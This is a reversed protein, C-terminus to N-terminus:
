GQFYIKIEGSSSRFWTNASMNKPDDTFSEVLEMQNVRVRRINPLGQLPLIGLKFLTKSGHFMIELDESKVMVSIFTDGDTDHLTLSGQDVLYAKFIVPSFPKDSLPGDTEWTPILANAKVYLPMIKLPAEIFLTQSGRYIKQTWYDIWRGEPLYVPRRGSQNYIPAVLIEDGFMYELDLNYTNPDDPFDLVLPRIIPTGQRSANVAANYLYPLLQYRLKFYDRFINCAEDGYEWPLRTTTGHARAMPTFAGFQAWRVLLDPSPKGKFGGIDHSWFAHGCMALSLGGRLTSALAPYTCNPDGSWQAPHRQGGAYSSRAWVVSARGTKEAILQSVLDNYLLPYLNHLTAGTMGNHAQADSPIGEGFDTKFADVGIQLVKELSQRFWSVTDPNTLDLIAVPPHDGSWLDVVIPEGIKNRLYYGRKSLENFHQSHVGIYPNIWLCLRYGMEHLQRVMGEPDPFAELNWELDSWSGFRMWYPDVHLVDCPIHNERLLRARKLVDEATDTLFGSSMWLGFSWKPPMVPFSVLQSYRYLISKPDPGAIVYYDLASDPVIFSFTAHCSAAMDFNISTVSDVFIGYGRSSIFFPVNKYARESHAGFADYHWMELRQGRKDLNTFKEGFGYFHEDPEATFTDHFAARQGGVTSFGFPLGTARGTVDADTSNQELLLQDDPGYFAIKFPDLEIRASVFNTILNVQTSSLEIRSNATENPLDHALRVRNPIKQGAELVVRLIGAAVSSITIDVPSRNQTIGTLKLTDASSELVKASVVFEPGGPDDAQRVPLGTPRAPFKVYRVLPIDHIM